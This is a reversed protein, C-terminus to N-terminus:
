KDKLMSNRDASTKEIAIIKALNIKDIMISQSVIIIYYYAVQLKLLKM